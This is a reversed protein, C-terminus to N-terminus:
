SASLATALREAAALGSVAAGEVRPGGFADGAFVLRQDELALCRERHTSKPLSYRWRHLAAATVAAGLYLQAVDLLEELVTPEPRAYNAESYGPSAHVTVSVQAPSIGKLQNDAMWAIPGNDLKLGGSPLGSAGDLTLMAALSPFYELAELDARVAAPLATQGADILALSQPVPPTLLVGASRWERGNECAVAWGGELRRVATARAERVVHLTEALFKPVATMAPAGRWRPHLGSGWEAVLGRAEWDRVLREFEPVRATFYQAGPDFVAGDIRKTAMRGGVGRSKELVHVDFGREQLRGAALLGAIGAGVVIVSAPSPADDTM